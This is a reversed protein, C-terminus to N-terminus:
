KIKKKFRTSPVVIQENIFILKWLIKTKLLSREKHKIVTEIYLEEM